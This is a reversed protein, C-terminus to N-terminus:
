HTGAKRASLYAEVDHRRLAKKAQALTLKGTDLLVALQEQWRVVRHAEIHESLNDFDRNNPTPVTGGIFADCVTFTESKGPVDAVCLVAIIADLASPDEFRGPLSSYWAGIVETSYSHVLFCVDRVHQSMAKAAGHHPSEIVMRRYGHAYALAGAAVRTVDITTM